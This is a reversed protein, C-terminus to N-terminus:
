QPHSIAERLIIPRLITTYSGAAASHQGSLVLLNSRKEVDAVTRGQYLPSKRGREQLDNDGVTKPISRKEQEVISSFAESCADSLIVSVRGVTM